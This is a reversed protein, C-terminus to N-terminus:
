LEVVSVDLEIYPASHFIAAKVLSSFRIFIVASSPDCDALPPKCKLVEQGVHPTLWAGLQGNFSDVIVAVILRAVTLPRGAFFLASILPFWSPIWKKM